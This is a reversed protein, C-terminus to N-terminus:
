ANTAQQARKQARHAQIEEDIEAETLPPQLAQLRDLTTKFNQAHFSRDLEKEILAIMQDTTLLGADRARVALEAPLHLIFEVTQM